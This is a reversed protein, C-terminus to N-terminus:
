EQKKANMAELREIEILLYEVNNKDELIEAYQYYKASSIFVTIIPGFFVMLQSGIFSMYKGMELFFIAPTAMRREVINEALSNLLLKPNLKEVSNEM